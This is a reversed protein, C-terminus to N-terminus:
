LESDDPFASWATNCSPASVFVDSSLVIVKSTTGTTWFFGGSGIVSSSKIDDGATEVENTGEDQVEEDEEDEDEGEEEDEDEDEEEDEDDVLSMVFAVVTCDTVSWAEVETTAEGDNNTVASRPRAVGNVDIGMGLTAATGTM